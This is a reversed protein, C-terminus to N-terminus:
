NPRAVREDRVAFLLAFTAANVGELTVAFWAAPLLVVIGLTRSDRFIQVFEKWTIMWTRLLM